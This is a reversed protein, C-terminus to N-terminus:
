VYDYVLRAISLERLANSRRGELGIAKLDEARNGRKM